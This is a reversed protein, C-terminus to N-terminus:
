RWAYGHGGWGPRDGRRENDHMDERLDRATKDLLRDLEVWEARGLRGDAEFRHELKEIRRMDHVLDKAEHRTLRGSNVGYEIREMMARQRQDIAQSAGQEWGHGPGAWHRNFEPANMNAYFGYNDAQSTGAMLGLSALAATSLIKAIRATKM